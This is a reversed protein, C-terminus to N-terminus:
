SAVYIFILWGERHLFFSNTNERCNNLHNSFVFKRLPACNALNQLYARLVVVVVVVICLQKAVLQAVSVRIIFVRPKKVEDNDRSRYFPPFRFAKPMAKSFAM